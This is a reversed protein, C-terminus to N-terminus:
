RKFYESWIRDFSNQLLVCPVIASLMRAEEEDGEERPLINPEPSAEEMDAHKSTIVNHLWGSRSVFGGDGGINTEKQEETTNRLKWWNESSLIRQETRAKGAKYEQLVKTFQKLQESGIVAMMPAPAQGVPVTAGVESTPKKEIEM